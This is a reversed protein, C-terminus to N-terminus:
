LALLPRLLLLEPAACSPLEMASLQNNPAAAHRTTVAAAFNGDSYNEGTASPTTNSGSYIDGKVYANYYGASWYDMETRSFAVVEGTAPDFVNSSSLILYQANATGSLASTIVVFIATLLLLRIAKM